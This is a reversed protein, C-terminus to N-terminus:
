LCLLVVGAVALVAGGIARTTPKEGFVAWAVPIILVPTTSMIAAGVGPHAYHVAMLSLSVGLFPGFFAGVSTQAMGKKDRLGKLLLPWRGSLTFLLAFGVIGTLVRILTGGFANDYIEMGMKSLILGGAQGLAGIFALTIGWTMQKPTISSRGTTRELIAWIVGSVTVVMGVVHYWPLGAGLLGWALLATMPPHLSMVLMSTRAGVVVFARFLTLDGIVFGVIGSLSFWFWASAPADLPLAHGFFLVGTLSLFVSALVLRVLNVVLSGVRNGASEFAISTVTWCAAAAMAALEGNLPSTLPPM